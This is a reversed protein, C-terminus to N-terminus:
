TSRAPVQANLRKGFIINRHDEVGRWFTGPREVLVVYGHKGYFPLAKRNRNSTGLHVGAVGQASIREEFRQILGEGIGRRQYDPLVNIHLHAPYDSFFPEAADSHGRAWTLVHRYSEPYKWWSVLFCRLALRWYMRSKFIREYRKSDAAGIIYGVVKGDLEDVAVFCNSAQFRLYGEINVLAFLRRDNFLGTGALDEGLFGTVHLINCVAHHDDRRYPRFQIGSKGLGSSEKM